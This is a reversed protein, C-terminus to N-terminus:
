YSPHSANGHHNTNHTFLVISFRLSSSEIPAIRHQHDAQFGERSVILDGPHLMITAQAEEEGKRRFDIPRSAGLSLIGMACGPQLLPGGDSHWDVYDPGCDYRVLTVDDFSIYSDLGCEKLYATLAKADANNTNDNQYARSLHMAPREIRTWELSSLWDWLFVCVESSVAGRHLTVGEILQYAEHVV